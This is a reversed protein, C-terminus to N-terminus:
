CCQTRFVYVVFGSHVTILVLLFSCSPGNAVIGKNGNIQRILDEHITSARNHTDASLQSWLMFGRLNCAFCNSNEKGSVDHAVCWHEAM